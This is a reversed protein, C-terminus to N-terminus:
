KGGSLLDKQKKVEREKKKLAEKAHRTRTAAEVSGYKAQSAKKEEKAERRSTMAGEVQVGLEKLKPITFEKAAKYTFYAPAVTTLGVAAITGAVGPLASAALGAATWKAVEKGGHKVSSKVAEKAAGVRKSPDHESAASVGADALAFLGTLLAGAKVGGKITRAVKSTAPKKTNEGVNAGISPSKLPAAPKAFRDL